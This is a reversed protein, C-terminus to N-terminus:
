WHDVLATQKGAQEELMTLTCALFVPLCCITLHYYVNTGSKEDHVVGAEKLVALHKSVTSLNSKVLSQLECVCLPGQALADAMLLRSPHGLAKFIKAQAAIQQRHQKSSKTM